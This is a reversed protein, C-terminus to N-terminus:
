PSQGSVPAHRTAKFTELHEMLWGWSQWEGPGATKSVAVALYDIEREIKELPLIHLRSMLIAAEIVAAQARNFGPFAAHSQRHTIACHFRPRQVDDDDIRVVRIAAHALADQLRVGGGEVPCLPFERRGTLCGAFFRSDNTFNIVAQRHAFLNDLSRSPRYPAIIVQDEEIQIGFPAHHAQSVPSDSLGSTGPPNMTTLIIEYIPRAPLTDSM